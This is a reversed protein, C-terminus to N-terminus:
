SEVEGRVKRAINRLDEAVQIALDFLSEADECERAASEVRDAMLDFTTVEYHTLLLGLVVPAPVDHVRMNGNPGVMVEIEDPPPNDGDYDPASTDVELDKVAAWAVEGCDYPRWYWGEPLPNLEHETLPTTMGSM